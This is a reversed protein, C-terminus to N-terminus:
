PKWAGVILKGTPPRPHRQALATRLAEGAARAEVETPFGGGDIHFTPAEDLSNANRAVLTLKLGDPLNFAKETTNFAFKRPHKAALRLRFKYAV